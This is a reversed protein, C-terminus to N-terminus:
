YLVTIHICAYIAKLSTSYEDHDRFIYVHIIVMTAAHGIPAISYVYYTTAAWFTAFTAGRLMEAPVAQWPNTMYAYLVFRLCYSAISLSLLAPVGLWAILRGSMWFLPAGAISAALPIVGFSSGMGARGGGSSEVIRNFAFNEIIGSLIGIALVVSFFMIVEPKKATSVESFVDTFGVASDSAASVQKPTNAATSASISVTATAAATAAASKRHRNDTLHAPLIHMMFYATPVSFLIHVIVIHRIDSALFMGAIYSGLGFGIQGFLRSRGYSSKRKLVQMVAADLLPKVPAAFVAALAVMAATARLDARPPPPLAFLGVRCLVSGLFTAFMIPQQIDYRDALATWLPAFALTVLPGISGLIGIDHEAHLL